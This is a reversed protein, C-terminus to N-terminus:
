ARRLWGVPPKPEAAASPRHPAALASFVVLSDSSTGLFDPVLMEGIPAGTRADPFCGPRAFWWSNYLRTCAAGVRAGNPSRRSQRAVGLPDGNKSLSNETM